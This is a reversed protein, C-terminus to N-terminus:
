HKCACKTPRENINAELVAEVQSSVDNFQSAQQAPTYLPASSNTYTVTSPYTYPTTQIYPANVFPTTNTKGLPVKYYVSAIARLEEKTIVGHTYLSIAAHLDQM